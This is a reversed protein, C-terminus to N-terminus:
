LFGELEKTGWAIVQNISEGAKMKALMTPLTGRNYIQVAIDPPAPMHAISVKAGHQPRVPYNYVSGEPPGIKDWVNSEAMKAYPPLDYGMVAASRKDVNEPEMMFEIFDKAASKAKAFQWIGWFYTINPIFRGKPGRPTPFHWVDQGVAPNDRVAVAWASPPNYILASNGSILARNNSADDFSQADAPMFQVLKQSYELAQRMADSKIQIKGEVDVLEAGFSAFVSGIFDVSDSTTGLGLAFTKGGKHAAEAAKLFADMTWAKALDTEPVNAAPYMKQVDIGCLDRMLSIRASPGKNQTGWSKPVAAWKGKHKGLYNAVENAKGNKAELRGVVDDVPELLHGVDQVTWNSIDIIDHGTKAQAEANVTLLGQNGNSTIFDAKVETKTKEAFAAVQKKMEENGAPVWHDWFMVSLTGAAGATRVHVWPITAAAAATGFKLARRRSIVSKSETIRM